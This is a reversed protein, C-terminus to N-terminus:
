LSGKSMIGRTNIGLSKGERISEAKRTSWFRLDVRLKCVPVIKMFGDGTIRPGTAGCLRTFFHWWHGHINKKTKIQSLM